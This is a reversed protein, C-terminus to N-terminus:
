WPATSSARREKLEAKYAERLQSRETERKPKKRLALQKSKPAAAYAARAASIKEKVIEVVSLFSLPETVAFLGNNLTMVLRCLINVNIFTEGALNSLSLRNLGIDAQRLHFMFRNYSVGHQRAAANIKMIWLARYNRRRVQFIPM